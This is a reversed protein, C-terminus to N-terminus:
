CWLDRRSFVFAWNTGDAPSEKPANRLVLIPIRRMQAVAFLNLDSSVMFIL